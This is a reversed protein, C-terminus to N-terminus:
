EVQAAINHKNIPATVIADITGAKAAEIAADISKLAYSGSVDTPTGLSLEVNDDWTTVLNAKKDKIDELSDCLYFNFDKMELANRHYSAVKSSAFVVPTCLDLIEKNELTKM